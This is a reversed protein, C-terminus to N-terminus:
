APKHHNAGLVTRAPRSPTSAEDPKGFDMHGAGTGHGGAPIAAAFAAPAGILTGAAIVLPFLVRISMGDVGQRSNHSASIPFSIVPITQATVSGHLTRVSM